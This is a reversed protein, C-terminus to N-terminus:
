SCCILAHHKMYSLMRSWCFFIRLETVDLESVSFRWVRSQGDCNWWCDEGVVCVVVKGVIMVSGGGYIGSFFLDVPDYRRLQRAGAHNCSCLRWDGVLFGELSLLFSPPLCFLWLCAWILLLLLLLLICLHYFLGWCLEVMLCWWVMFFSSNRHTTSSSPTTQNLFFTTYDIKGKGTRESGFVIFKNTEGVQAQANNKNMYECSENKRNKTGRAHKKPWTSLYM